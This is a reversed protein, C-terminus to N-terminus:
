FCKVYFLLQLLSHLRFNKQLYLIRFTDLLHLFLASFAGAALPDRTVHVEGEAM